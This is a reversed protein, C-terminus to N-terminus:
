EEPNTVLPLEEYEVEIAAVADEALYRSEAVVAVVAEGVFRVKDKALIQMITPQYDKMRSKALIPNFEDWIDDATFVGVVGPMSQAASRDVGVIKAHSYDSRRFAIHLMRPLKIDDVYRGRGTLLRPDERRKVRSGVYKNQSQQSM